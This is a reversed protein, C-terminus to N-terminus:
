LMCFIGRLCDFSLKDLAAQLSCFATLCCLYQGFDEKSERWFVTLKPREELSTLAKSIENHKLINDFDALSCQFSQM